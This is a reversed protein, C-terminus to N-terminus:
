LDSKYKQMYLVDVFMMTNKSYIICWCIKYKQMYLADVFM